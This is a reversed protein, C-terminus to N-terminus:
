EGGIVCDLIRTHPGGLSVPLPFQAGKGCGGPGDHYQEDGAIADINQLTKFLNGSLTVDRVMEAIRGKRIMYAKSATFTFLEIATQGGKSGIVYIGEDIGDMIEDLTGTGGEIRTDRM